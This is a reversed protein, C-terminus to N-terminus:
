RSGDMIKHYISMYDGAAGSKPAYEFLSKQLAAAEGIAVGQRVSGLFPAGMERAKETLTEQMQQYITGRQIQTLIIGTIQLRPNSKEFQAATAKIQYLSQVNYIDAKLPIILGTCAQLANYLLEGATPPTDIIALDYKGRIEELANSLRWASGRSSQLTAAEWSAAVMDLGDRIQQVGSGQEIFDMIGGAQTDAGMTFSFNGQPDLDLALVRKGESAAAWSLAAATTTKGTGGKNTAITFVQM